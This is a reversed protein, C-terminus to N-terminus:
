RRTSTPPIPQLPSLQGDNLAFTVHTQGGSACCLADGSRYNPYALTVETDGQGVVSLTASPATSDTGIYRGDVFFFALQDYGDGSGTRTGILVRLTQSPHYQSTDNPTYGHSKVAAIAGALEASAGEEHVYAPSAETRTGAPAATGGNAGAATSATATTVGAAPAYGRPGGSAATATSESGAVTVIKTSSGCGSLLALAGALLLTAAPKPLARM